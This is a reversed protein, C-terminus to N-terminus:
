LEEARQRGRVDKKREAKRKKKKHNTAKLGESIKQNTALRQEESEVLERAFKKYLDSSFNGQLVMLKHFRISDLSTRRESM